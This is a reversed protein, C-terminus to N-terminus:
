DRPSPSTYLLCTMLLDAKAMVEPKMQGTEELYRAIFIDPALCMMNQEGCGFPMALLGELGEITQALYSATVALYARASGPVIGEPVATSLLRSSPAALVLNEVEERPVGEPEVIIDKLVADAVQRSRATVKVKKGPQLPYPEIKLDSFEIAM